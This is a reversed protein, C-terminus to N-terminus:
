HTSHLNTMKATKTLVAGKQCPVFVRNVLVVTQAVKDLSTLPETPIFSGQTKPPEGQTEVGGGGLFFGFCLFSLSFGLFCLFPPCPPAWPAGLPLVPHLEPQM